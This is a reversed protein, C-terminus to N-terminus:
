FRGGLAIGASSGTARVTIAPETARDSPAGTIWSVTAAIAAAAGVGFAVNAYLARDAARDVMDTARGADVCPM